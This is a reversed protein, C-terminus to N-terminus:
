VVKGCLLVDQFVVVGVRQYNTVYRVPFDGHESPFSVRHAHEISEVVINTMVPSYM